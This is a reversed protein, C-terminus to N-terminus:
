AFGTNTSLTNEVYMATCWAFVTNSNVKWFV